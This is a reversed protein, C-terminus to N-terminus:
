NIISEIQKERWDAQDYYTINTEIMEINYNCCIIPYVNTYKFQEKLDKIDDDFLLHESKINLIIIKKEM